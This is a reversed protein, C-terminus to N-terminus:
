DTKFYIQKDVYKADDQITHLYFVTFCYKFSIIMIWIDHRYRFTCLVINKKMEVPEPQFQKGKPKLKYVYLWLASERIFPRSVYCPVADTSPPASLYLVLTSSCNSACNSEYTWTFNVCTDVSFLSYIMRMAWKVLFQFYFFYLDVRYAFM